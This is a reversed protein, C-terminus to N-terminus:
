VIKGHVTHKPNFNNLSSTVYVIKKLEGKKLVMTILAVSSTVHTVTLPIHRRTQMYPLIAKSCKKRDKFSGPVLSM